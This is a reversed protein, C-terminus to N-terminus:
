RDVAAARPAIQERALRRIADRLEVQEATLRYAQPEPM